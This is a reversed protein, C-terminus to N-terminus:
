FNLGKTKGSPDLHSGFSNHPLIGGCLDRSLPAMRREVPNSASQHPAHTALFMADLNFKKFNCAAHILTKPFRPNEDPGGDTLIILIPKLTGDEQKMIQDFLKLTTLRRIDVAHSKATSHFFYKLRISSLGKFIVFNGLIMNGRDFALIHPDM